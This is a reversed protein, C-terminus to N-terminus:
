AEEGGNGLGHIIAAQQTLLPSNCPPIRTNACKMHYIQHDMMVAHLVVIEKSSSDWSLEFPRGCLKCTTQSADASAKGSFDYGRTEWGGADEAASEKSAEPREEGEDDDGSFCLAEADPM